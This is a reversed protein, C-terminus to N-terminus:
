ATRFRATAVAWTALSRPSSSARAVHRGNAQGDARMCVSRARSRLAKHSPQRTYAVYAGITLLVFLTSLVDKRETVWAVSEVHLPHVAFVAAVFASPGPAGTMSRLLRFVLLVNATHLVLNTLHHPGPALGFLQVDLLHSIWTIPHWYRPFARDHGGLAPQPAHDGGSHEQQRHHLDSRGLQRVPLTSNARVGSHDADGVRDRGSTVDLKALKEAHRARASIQGNSRPRM